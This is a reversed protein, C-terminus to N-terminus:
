HKLLEGTRVVLRHHLHVVAGAAVPATNQDKLLRTRGGV